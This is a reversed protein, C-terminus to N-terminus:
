SGGAARRRAPSQRPRQSGPWRPASLLNHVFPRPTALTQGRFRRASSEERALVDAFIHQGGMLWLYHRSNSRRYMSRRAATAQWTGARASEVQRFAIVACINCWLSVRVLARSGPGPRKGPPANKNGRKGRGERRRPAALEVEGRAPSARQFGHGAIVACDAHRVADHEGGVKPAHQPGERRGRTSKWPSWRSKLCHLIDLTAARCRM